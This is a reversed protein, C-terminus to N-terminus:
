FGSLASSWSLADCNSLMFFKQKFMNRRCSSFILRSWFWVNKKELINWNRFYWSYDASVLNWCPAPNVELGHEGAVQQYIKEKLLSVASDAQSWPSQKRLRWFVLDLKQLVTRWPTLVRFSHYSLVTLYNIVRTKLSKEEGRDITLSDLHLILTLSKPLLSGGTLLDGLLRLVILQARHGLATIM